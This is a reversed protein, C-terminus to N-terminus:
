APVSAMPRFRRRYEAPATGLTRVFARRMAEPTGYGCARSVEEVGDATDELLRRATELRVQDVYRGPSMGVEAQFARAFHRPSLNARSALADVSLDDDPHEAIWHQVDRLTPRGATQAALQASFQRQNGPRRLFVVLHRAIHLALDRGHDEEVLALALDIGATVGASTAVDGDRVYIPEPDLEVDPYRAAFDACYAWHTTARRGDLLGAAALLFAGTCVSVRRGARSGHERLWAVLRPDPDETCYGGPVVLLDPPACDALAADPMLGLGSHTRLPRGDVSATRVRYADPDGLAKAAGNFVELPGTVDLSQVNEYLVFLVNRRTTM